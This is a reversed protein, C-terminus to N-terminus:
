DEKELRNLLVIFQIAKERILAIKWGPTSPFLAFAKGLQERLQSVSERCEALAPHVGGAQRILMDCIDKGRERLASSTKKPMM